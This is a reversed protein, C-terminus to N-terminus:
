ARLDVMPVRRVAKIDGEIVNGAKDRVATVLESVFRVTVHRIRDALHADVIDASSVGVFSLENDGGSVRARLDGPSFSDLVERSLLNRLNVTAMRM